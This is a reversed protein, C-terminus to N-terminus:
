RNPDWQLSIGGTNYTDNGVSADLPSRLEGRYRASLLWEGLRSTFGATM